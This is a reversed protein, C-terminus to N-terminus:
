ESMIVLTTPYILLYSVYEIHTLQSPIREASSLNDIVDFKRLFRCTQFLRFNGEVYKPQNSDRLLTAFRDFLELSVDILKSYQFKLSSHLEADIM